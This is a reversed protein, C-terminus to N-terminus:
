EQFRLPRQNEGTRAVYDRYSEYWRMPRYSSLRVRGGNHERLKACIRGWQRNPFHKAIELQEPHKKYLKLLNEVDSDTWAIGKAARPEIALIM